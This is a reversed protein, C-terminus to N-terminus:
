NWKACDTAALRIPRTDEYRRTTEEEEEEVGRWGGDRGEERGVVVVGKIGPNEVLIRADGRNM